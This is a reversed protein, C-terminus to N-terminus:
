VPIRRVIMRLETREGFPRPEAALPLRITLIGDRYAAVAEDSEIAVPLRIKKAFEGYEIEKMLISGCSVREPDIRRGVIFLHRAEASIHLDSTDAGAIELKVVLTSGDASLVLDANPEFRGPRSRRALDAYLAEFEAFFDDDMDAGIWFVSLTGATAM